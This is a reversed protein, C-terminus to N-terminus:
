DRSSWFSWTQYQYYSWAQRQHHVLVLGCTRNPIMAGCGSDGLLVSGSSANYGGGQCLLEVAMWNGSVDMGDRVIVVSCVIVLDPM